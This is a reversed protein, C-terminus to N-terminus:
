LVKVPYAKGIICSMSVAGMYRGDFSNPIHSSVPVFSNHEVTHCGKIPYLPLGQSDQTPVKGIYKENIFFNGDLVCYTDGELAGVYKLLPWGKPLWGRSYVFPKVWQPPPFVVMDGRELSLTNSYTVHYLGLPVSDSLNIYFPHNISSIKVSTLIMLIGAISISFIIIVIRIKDGKM